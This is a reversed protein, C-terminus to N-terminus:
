QPPNQVWEDFARLVDYQDEYQSRNLFETLRAANLVPLALSAEARVYEAGRLHYIELKKGDYRWIEPVKLEAYIPLKALSDHHIDVEVVVDPPPDTNFDIDDRSGLLDASQIYFCADPEAGKRHRKKKMTASGFFAIRTRLRVSVLGIFLKILDTYKEHRASLTRIELTGEDYSIRLGRAEGAEALLEEYEDWPIHRLILTSDEPLKGILEAYNATQVTM